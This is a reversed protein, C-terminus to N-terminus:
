DFYCHYYYRTYCTDVTVFIQIVYCHETYSLTQTVIICTYLIITDTYCHYLCMFSYRGTCCPIQAIIICACSYLIRHVLTDTYYHYTYMFHPHRYVYHVCVRVHMILTWHVPTDLTISYRHLPALILTVHIHTM